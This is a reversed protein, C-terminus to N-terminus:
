RLFVLLRSPNSGQSYRFPTLVPSKESARWAIRPGSAGPSEAVVIVRSLAVQSSSNATQFLRDSAPL